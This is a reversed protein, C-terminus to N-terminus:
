MDEVAQDWEKCLIREDRLMLKFESSSKKCDAFGSCSKFLVQSENLFSMKVDSHEVEIRAKKTRIIQKLQDALRSRIDVEYQFKKSIYLKAYCRRPIRRKRM